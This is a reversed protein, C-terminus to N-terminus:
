KFLGITATTAEVVARFLGIGALLTVVFFIGGGVVHAIRDELGDPM